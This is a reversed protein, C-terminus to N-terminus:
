LCGQSAEPYLNKEMATEFHVLDSKTIGPKSGVSRAFLFTIEYARGMETSLLMPAAM